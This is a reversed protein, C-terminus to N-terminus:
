RGNRHDSECAAVLSRLNSGYGQGICGLRVTMIGTVPGRQKVGGEDAQRNSRNLRFSPQQFLQFQLSISIEPMKPLDALEQDLFVIGPQALVTRAIM